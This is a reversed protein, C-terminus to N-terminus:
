SSVTRRYAQWGLVAGGFAALLAVLGVGLAVGGLRSSTGDRTQAQASTGASSSSTDGSLKLVPAPHQPEGQGSVSPDIWAAESGDSYGQVVPFVLAGSNPFPGGALAFEQFEGPGIGAGDGARFEVVSIYTTIEQGEDNRVPQDLNATTMTVTWGPVPQVRLSALGAEQPIQIRVDVTSATDSENPVRFTIKGFGGPAADQSSVTVHASAVAAVAVSAALAVLASLVVVALRALPRPLSV